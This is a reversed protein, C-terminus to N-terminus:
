EDDDDCWMEPAEYLKSQQPDYLMCNLASVAGLLAEIAEPDKPFSWSCHLFVGLTHQPKSGIAWVVQFGEENLETGEDSISQFADTFRYRIESIPIWTLGDPEGDECLSEYIAQSDCGDSTQRWCCFDYSM